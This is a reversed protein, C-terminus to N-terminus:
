NLSLFNNMKFYESWWSLASHVIILGRSVTMFNMLNNKMNILKENFLFACFCKLFQNLVGLFLIAMADSIDLLFCPDLAGARRAWIGRPVLWFLGLGWGASATIRM